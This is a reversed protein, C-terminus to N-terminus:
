YDIDDSSLPKPGNEDHNLGVKKLEEDIDAAESETAEGSFANGEGTISASAIPEEFQQEDERNEGVDAISPIQHNDGEDDIGGAQNDSNSDDKKIDDDIM